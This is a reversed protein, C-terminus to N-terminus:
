RQMSAPADSARLAADRPPDPRVEPRRDAPRTASAAGPPRYGWPTAPRRRSFPDLLKVSSKLAAVGPRVRTAHSVRLEQQSPALALADGVLQCYAASPAVSAASTARRRAPLPAPTRRDHTWLWRVRPSGHFANADQRAAHRRGG